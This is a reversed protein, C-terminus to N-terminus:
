LTKEVQAISQDIVNILTDIQDKTIILPPAISLIDGMYDFYRTGFIKVGKQLAVKAIKAGVQQEFAFPEKTERNKVLEIGVLLGKGRVDGIIKRDLKGLEDLLYKGLSASKEVLNQKEIVDIVELAATCSIPNGGYTHGDAFLPSKEGWFADM